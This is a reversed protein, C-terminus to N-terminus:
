KEYDHLSADHERNVPDTPHNRGAFFQEMQQGLFRIGRQAVFGVAMGGLESILRKTPSKPLSASTAQAVEALKQAEAKGFRRAPVVLYGLGIAAACAVWPHGRWHRRWDTMDRANQVLDHVDESMNMRARQLQAQLFEIEDSRSPM